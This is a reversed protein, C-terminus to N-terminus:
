EAEHEAAYARALDADIRDNDAGTPSGLDLEGFHREFRARAAQKENETQPTGNRFQRELANAAVQDASVGATEAKARIAAYTPDSIQVTLTQSM